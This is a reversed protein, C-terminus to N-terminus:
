SSSMGQPQTWTSCTATPKLLCDYGPEGRRPESTRDSVNFYQALKQFRNCTMTGMIGPNGIFPNSSWYMSIEQLQQIGMLVNIALFSRMEAESTEHWFSDFGDRAQVWQAYTNTHVIMTILQIPFVLWFYDLPTAQDVDFDDPFNPGPTETFDDIQIADEHVHLPERCFISILFELLM